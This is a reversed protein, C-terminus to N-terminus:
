NNKNFISYGVDVLKYYLILPSGVIILFVGIIISAFLSLIVSLFVFPTKWGHYKKAESYTMWNGGLPHRM